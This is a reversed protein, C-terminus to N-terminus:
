GGPSSGQRGAAKLGEEPLGDPYFFAQIVKQAIPAAASGGHGSHEALVAVAITPEDVPAFAVFWAHDRYRYPIDELEKVGKFRELRVVQSTGTKGVVVVGEVRALKGTGRAENVVGDLANKVLNLVWPQIKAQRRLEPEFVKEVRGDVTEIRQIIQPRWLKGGNCVAAILGAMQLPTVLNFGQGIALSLTEGEQWPEGFREEKWAKTPVLGPKEPGLGLSAAEGLGLERAYVALRDVGVRQGVRYFFVDCSEVLARHVSIAGHGGKKWCHYPRGGFYYHGPCYFTSEPTIVGEMLGAIATVIKHTSGPPYQGCLARNELPHLPHDVLQRWEEPKLGGGFVAQDFTPRSVMALVQGTQPDLAVLAGATAVFAEEAAQQLRADITLYVNRGPQPSVEQLIKLPRGTADVEVQRGGRQGALVEQWAQEVGYQGVRDGLRIGQEKMQTLQRETVEGTYGIAHAALSPHLYYRRPEILLSLGPTEYKYTEVKAVEERRLDAKILIPVFPPSGRHRGLSEWVQKPPLGLLAELRATLAAMDVVDERILALDFAPANDVLLRGARDFIMGRSPPIDQLRIRNHESLEAFYDGKFLQLYWLRGVLFALALGLILAAVIFRGRQSQPEIASLPSLRAM